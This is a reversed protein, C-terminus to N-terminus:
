ISNSLLREVPEHVTGWISADYASQACLTSRSWGAM